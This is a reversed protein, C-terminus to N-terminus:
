IRSQEAEKLQLMLKTVDDVAANFADEIVVRLRAAKDSDNTDIAEAYQDLAERWINKM